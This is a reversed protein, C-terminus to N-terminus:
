VLSDLSQLKANSLCGSKKLLKFPHASAQTAPSFVGATLYAAGPAECGVETPRPQDREGVFETVLEGRGPLAKSKTKRCRKLKLKWIYALNVNLIGIVITSDLHLSEKFHRPHDTVERSWTLHIITFYLYMNYLIHLSFLKHRTSVGRCLTSSRTGRERGKPIQVCNTIGASFAELSVQAVVHVSHTLRLFACKHIDYAKGDDCPKTDCSMQRFRHCLMTRVLCTFFNLM